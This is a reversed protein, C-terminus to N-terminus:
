LKIHLVRSVFGALSHYVLLHVCFCALCSHGFNISGWALSLSAMCSPAFYKKQCYVSIATHSMLAPRTCGALCSGPCSLPERM